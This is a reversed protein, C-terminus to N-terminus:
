RGGAATLRERPSRRGLAVAIGAAGLATAALAARRPRGTRWGGSVGVRDDAPAFLNGPSAAAPTDALHDREVQRAMAREFVAPATAHFARLLRGSVGVTVERRPRRACRVIAAAVRGAPIIPDLPKAARGTYNGAHHFLPTDISAPLVTCVAIGPERRLEQRLSEGLGTVAFKSAVYASALPSAVKGNMSSVNVIVGRGRERFHPLVARV